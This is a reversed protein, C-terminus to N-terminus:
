AIRKFNPSLDKVERVLNTRSPSAQIQEAILFFKSKWQRLNKVNITTTMIQCIKIVLETDCFFLAQLIYIMSKVISDNANRFLCKYRAWKMESIFSGQKNRDLNWIKLCHDLFWSLYVRLFSVYLSGIILFSCFMLNLSKLKSGPLLSRLYFAQPKHPDCIGAVVPPSSGCIEQM